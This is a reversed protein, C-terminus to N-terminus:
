KDAIDGVALVKREEMDSLKQMNSVIQKGQTETVEVMKIQSSSQRRRVTTNMPRPDTSMNKAANEMKDKGKATCTSTAGPKRPLRPGLNGGAGHSSVNHQLVPDAFGEEESLM